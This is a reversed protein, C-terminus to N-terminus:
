GGITEVRNITGALRCTAKFLDIRSGSKLLRKVNKIRRELIPILYELSCILKTSSDIRLWPNAKNWENKAMNRHRRVWDSVIELQKLTLNGKYQEGTLIEVLGSTKGLDVHVHPPNHEAGKIYVPVVKKGIVVRGIEKKYGDLIMKQRGITQKTPKIIEKLTMM